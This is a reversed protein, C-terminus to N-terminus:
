SKKILDYYTNYIDETVIGGMEIAPSPYDEFLGIYNYLMFRTYADVQNNGNCIQFMLADDIEEYINNSKRFVDKAHQFDEKLYTKVHGKNHYLSIPIKNEAIRTIISSILDQNKITGDDGLIKMGYLTDKYWRTYRDRIAFISTQSDSFLNIKYNRYKYSADVGLLIANLEGRQTTTSTEIIFNQEVLIDDYYVCYGSCTSGNNDSCYSADTFICITNKNFLDKRYLM